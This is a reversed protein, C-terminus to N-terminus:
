LILPEHGTIERERGLYSYRTDGLAAVPGLDCFLISDENKLIIDGLETKLRLLAAPACDVVFVSFQVRDGYTELAKAVRSRRRDHPIDYAIIHRRTDKRM